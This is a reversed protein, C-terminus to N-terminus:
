TSAAALVIPDNWERPWDPYEEASALPPASVLALFAVTPVLRAIWQGVISGWAVSRNRSAM